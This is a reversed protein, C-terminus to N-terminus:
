FNYENQNVKLYAQNLAAQDEEIKLTLTDIDLCERLIWNNEKVFYEMTATFIIFLHSLLM